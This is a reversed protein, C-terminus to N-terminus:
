AAAPMAAPSTSTGSGKAPQDLHDTVRKQADLWDQPPVLLNTVFPASHADVFVEAPSPPPTRPLFMLILSIIVGVAAAIFGVVPIASCVEVGAMVAITAGGEALFAVGNSIESIIDLAEIAPSQGTDFDNQIAFGTCVCAAALALVTMAQAFAGTVKAINEWRAAARALEEGAQAATLDASAVRGAGSLVEEISLPADEIVGEGLLPTEQTISVEKPIDQIIKMADLTEQLSADLKALTRAAWLRSGDRFIEALTEVLNVIVQIKEPTKLHGWNQFTQVANFLSYAYFAFVMGQGVAALKPYKKAFAQLATIFPKGQLQILMDGFDAIISGMSAVLDNVTTVGNQVMLDNIEKQAVARIEDSWKDGQLLSAFYQQFFRTLFEVMDEHSSPTINNVVQAMRVDVIAQYLATAYSVSDGKNGRALRTQPDLVHLMTTLHTILARGDLTNNLALGTQTPETTCYTYLQLAWDAPNNEPKLYDALGPVSEVYTNSLLRATLKNYGPDKGLSTKGAGKWFYNLKDQLGAMQQFKSKLAANDSSSFSQTLYGVAFANVLFDHVEKDNNVLDADAQSLVGSGPVPRTEGFFQLWDDEIVYLMLTKMKAFSTQHVLSMDPAPLTYLKEKSLGDASALDAANFFLPAAHASTQPAANAPQALWQATIAQQMSHLGASNKFIGTVPYSQKARNDPQSADYAYLVGNFQSYNMNFEIEASLWPWGTLTCYNPSCEMNLSLVAQKRPNNIVSFFMMSAGNLNATQQADGPVVLAASVHMAGKANSFGVQLEAPWQVTKGDASYSVSYDLQGGAQFPITSTGQRIVGSGMLGHPLMQFLGTEKVGSDLTRQWTINKEHSATEVLSGNIFLQGHMFALTEFGAPLPREPVSPQVRMAPMLLDAAGRRFQRIVGHADTHRARASQVPNELMENVAKLTVSGFAKEMLPSMAELQQRFEQQERANMYTLMNSSIRQLTLEPYNLLCCYGHAHYSPHGERFHLDMSVMGEGPAMSSVNIKQVAEKRYSIHGEKVHAVKLVVDGVVLTSVELDPNIQRAAQPDLCCWGRQTLVAHELSMFPADDNVAYMTKLHRNIVKESSSISVQSHASLVAEGEHIARIPKWSGDAMLVPTDALVGGPTASAANQPPTNVGAALQLHKNLTLEPM